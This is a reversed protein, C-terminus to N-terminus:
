HLPASEKATQWAGLAIVRDLRWALRPRSLGNVAALDILVATLVSVFPTMCASGLLAM